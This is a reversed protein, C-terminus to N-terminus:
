PTVKQPNPGFTNTGPTSPHVLLGIILVNLAISFLAVLLLSIHEKDIRPEGLLDLARDIITQDACIRLLIILFLWSAARGIDHVRRSAVALLPIAGAALFCIVLIFGPGSLNSRYGGSNASALPPDFLITSLEALTAELLLFVLFFWWFESRSARGSFTAYKRLCTKIAQIPGM